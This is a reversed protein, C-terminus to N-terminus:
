MKLRSVPELAHLLEKFRADRDPDDDGPLGGERLLLNRLADVEKQAGARRAIDPTARRTM